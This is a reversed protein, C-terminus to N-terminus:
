LHGLIIVLYLYSNLGNWFYDFQGSDFLITLYWFYTPILRDSQIKIGWPTSSPRKEIDSNSEGLTLVYINLNINVYSSLKKMYYQDTMHLFEGLDTLVDISRCKTM